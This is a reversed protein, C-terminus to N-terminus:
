FHLTGFGHPSCPLLYVTHGVERFGWINGSSSRILFV